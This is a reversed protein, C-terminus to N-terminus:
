TSGYNQANNFSANFFIYIYFLILYFYLYSQYFLFFNGCFIFFIMLAIKVTNFQQNAPQIPNLDPYGMMVAKYERYALFVVFIGVKEFLLTLSGVTTAWIARSRVKGDPNSFGREPDQIYTGILM